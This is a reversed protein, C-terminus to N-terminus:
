HRSRFERKERRSIVADAKLIQQCVEAVLPDDHMLESDDRRALAIAALLHENMTPPQNMHAVM